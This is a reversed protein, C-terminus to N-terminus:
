YLQNEKGYSNCNNLIQKKQATSISIKIPYGSLPGNGNIYLM